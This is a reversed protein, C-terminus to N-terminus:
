RARQMRALLDMEVELRRAEELRAIFRPRPAEEEEGGRPRRAGAAGAVLLVAVGGTALAFSGPLWSLHLAAFGAAPLLRFALAAALLTTIGGLEGAAVLLSAILSNSALELPWPHLKVPALFCAAALAVAAAIAIRRGRASASGPPAGAGLRLQVRRGCALLFAFVAACTLGSALPGDAADVIPLDLSLAGAHTGPLWTALAYCALGLGAAAAGLGVGTLLASGAGATLRHARLLDLSTDFRPDAARWLSEAASWLIALWM